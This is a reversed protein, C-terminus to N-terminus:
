EGTTSLLARVLHYKSVEAYTNDRIISFELFPITQPIHRLTKGRGSTIVVSPAFSDIHKLGPWEEDKALGLRDALRDIVGQHVVVLDAACLDRTESGFPSQAKLVTVDGLYIGEGEALRGKNKRDALRRGRSEIADSVFVPLATEKTRVSFVPFCGSKFLAELVGRTIGQDEDLVADAVREDVIVVSTLASELLNLLL